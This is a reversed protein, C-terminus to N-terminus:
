TSAKSKSTLDRGNRWRPSMAMKDMVTLFEKAKTAEFTAKELKELIPASIGAPAISLQSANRIDNCGL